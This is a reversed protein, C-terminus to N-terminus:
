SGHLVEIFRGQAAEVRPGEALPTGVGPVAEGPQQAVLRELTQARIQRRQRHELFHEALCPTMPLLTVVAIRELVLGAHRQGGAPLAEDVLQLARAVACPESAREPGLGELKAEVPVVGRAPARDRGVAVRCALQARVDEVEVGFRVPIRGPAALGEDEVVPAAEAWARGGSEVVEDRRLARLREAVATQ